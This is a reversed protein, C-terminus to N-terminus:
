VRDSIHDQLAELLTSLEEFDSAYRKIPVGDSLLTISLAGGDRTGSITVGCGTGVVLSIIGGWKEGAQSALGSARNSRGGDDPGTGWIGAARGNLYAQADDTRKQGATRRREPM